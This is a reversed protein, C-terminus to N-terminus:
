FIFSRREFMGSVTYEGHVGLFNTIQMAVVESYIQRLRVQQQEHIVMGIGSPM